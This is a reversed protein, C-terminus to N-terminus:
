DGVKEDAPKVNRFQFYLVVDYVIKLVGGIVFPASLLPLLQLITGTLSPSITQSINRSTNTIAAAPTREEENVVAVIYSQRTPVDM